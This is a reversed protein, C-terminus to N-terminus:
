PVGIPTGQKMSPKTEDGARARDTPCKPAFGCQGCAALPARHTQNAKNQTQKTAWDRNRRATSIMRAFRVNEPM